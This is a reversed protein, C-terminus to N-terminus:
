SARGDALWAASYYVHGSYNRGGPMGPVPQWDDPGVPQGTAASVAAAAEIALRDGPKRIPVATGGDAEIALVDIRRAAGPTLGAAAAARDYAAADM